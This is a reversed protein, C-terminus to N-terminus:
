EVIDPLLEGRRRQQMREMLWPRQEPAIPDLMNMKGIVEEPAYGSMEALRQNIFVFRGGADAQWIGVLPSEVLQRYRLESAALARTREIVQQEMEAAHRQVQEYLRANQIAVAIQSAVTELVRQDTETYANLRPTEVNVVGIVRDGLRLPVCLESRIEERMAYYRPDKRVDGVRVSKGSQAVWGTIGVGVRLPHSAVYAKDAEVFDPGKGQESLAFPLLRDSGEEILLVAGYEYGLTDELVRIIEQSLREPTYLQQLHQGAQHVAMLEQLRQENEGSLRSQEIAIALSDAIKRLIDVQEETFAQSEEAGLNLSGILEGQVVLPVTVYSRIGETLLVQDVLPPSALTQIDPVLKVEGQRLDEEVGYEQMPLRMGAPLRTEGEPLVVALWRVEQARFDFQVVSARRYPVLQRILHLATRAIEEPPRIALIARDIERQVQLREAHTLLKRQAQQIREAMQNFTNGLTEVEDGSRIAVRQAFNGGGFAQAALTLEALGRTFRSGLWLALGLILIGAAGVGVEITTVLRSFITAIVKEPRAIELYGAQRGTATSGPLPSYVARYRQRDVTTSYPTKEGPIVAVTDIAPLTTYRRRGAIIISVEEGITAKLGEVFTNDLAYGTVIAGLLRYPPVRELVPAGGALLLPRSPLNLITMVKQGQLSQAFATRTRLNDGYQQPAHARALVTGAADTVVIYDLSREQMFRRTIQLLRKRNSKMIARMVDLRLALVEAESQAAEQRLRLIMQAAQEARHLERVVERDWFDALLWSTIGLCIITVFLTTLVLILSLKSRISLPLRM